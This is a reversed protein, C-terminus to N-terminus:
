EDDDQGDDCEVDGSENASAERQSDHSQEAVLWWSKLWTVSPISHM